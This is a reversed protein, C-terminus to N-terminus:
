VPNAKIQQELVDRDPSSRYESQALSDSGLMEKLTTKTVFIPLPLTAPSDVLFTPLVGASRLYETEVGM